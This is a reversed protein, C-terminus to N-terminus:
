EVLYHGARHRHREGPDSLPVDAIPRHIHLDASYWNHQSLDAIRQLTCKLASGSIRKLSRTGPGRSVNLSSKPDTSLEADGAATVAWTGRLSEHEPGREIEYTYSGPALRLQLKGPSCFHGRWFPLGPPVVAEGSPDTLHMRYPISRGQEDRVDVTVAHRKESVNESPPDVAECVPLGCRAFVAVILVTRLRANEPQRGTVIDWGHSTRSPQTLRKGPVM